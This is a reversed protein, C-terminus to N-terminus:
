SRGPCGHSRLFQWCLSPSVRQSYMQRKELSHLVNGVDGVSINEPREQRPGGALGQDMLQSALAQSGSLLEEVKCRAVGRPPPLELFRQGHWPCPSAHHSCRRPHRSGGSSSSSCSSCRPNGRLWRRSYPLYPPRRPSGRDNQSSAPSTM